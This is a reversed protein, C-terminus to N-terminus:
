GLPGSRAIEYKTITSSLLTFTGAVILV